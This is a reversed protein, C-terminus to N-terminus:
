HKAAEDGSAATPAIQRYCWWEWGSLIACDFRRELRFTHGDVAMQAAPEPESAEAPRNLILWDPGRASWQDGDVYQIQCRLHAQSRYYDILKRVGFNQDSSLTVVSEPSDRVMYQLAELYRGRSSVALRTIPLLNAAMSLLLLGACAARGWRGRRYLDALVVALIFPVSLAAMLLYRPFLFPPAVAWALALPTLLLAGLLLGSHLRDDRLRWCAAGSAVVLILASLVAGLGHMPGGVALAATCTFVQSLSYPPGGGLELDRWMTVYIVVALIGPLAFITAERQLTERWGRSRSSVATMSWCGAAILFHMFIPHSLLGLLCSTWFTAVRSWHPEEMYRWLSEWALLALFMSPAYGRAESTYHVMLYSSALLTSAMVAETRGWRLAIWGGLVVSATGCAVAPLRYFLPSWGPGMVRLYLTNLVHNNDTRLDTLVGALSNAQHALELSWIEDLWLPGAAAAFRIGAAFLVVALWFSVPISRSKGGVRPTAKWGPLRTTVCVATPLPNGLM